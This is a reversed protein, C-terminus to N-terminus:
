LFFLCYLFKKLDFFSKKLWIAIYLNTQNLSIKKSDFFTKEPYVLLCIEAGHSLRYFSILTTVKNNKTKIYQIGKQFLNGNLKILIRFSM